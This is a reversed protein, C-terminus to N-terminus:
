CVYGTSHSNVLINSFRSYSRHFFRFLFSVKFLRYNPLYNPFLFGLNVLSWSTLLIPHNNATSPLRLFQFQVKDFYKNKVPAWSCFYIINIRKYCSSYAFQTINLSTCSGKWGILLKGYTITKRSSAFIRFFDLLLHMYVSRTIPEQKRHIDIYRRKSSCSSSRSSPCSCTERTFIISWWRLWIWCMEVNPPNGLRCLFRSCWSLTGKQDRVFTLVNDFHGDEGRINGPNSAMHQNTPERYYAATARERTTSWNWKTEKFSFWYQFHNM